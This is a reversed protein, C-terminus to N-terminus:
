IFFFLKRKPILGKRLNEVEAKNKIIFDQFDIPKNTKLEDLYNVRLVPIGQRFAVRCKYTNLDGGEKILFAVNKNLIFSIKGGHSAVTEILQKKRKYATSNSLDLCILSDALIKKM